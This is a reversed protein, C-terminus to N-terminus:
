QEFYYLYVDELDITDTVQCASDPLKDGVVRLAMGKERQRVNGARYKSQLEEVIKTGRLM